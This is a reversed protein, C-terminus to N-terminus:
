YYVKPFVHGSQRSNEPLKLFTVVEQLEEKAEEIGAVDNFTIGTKAEMQFRARTKGFNMAQSSANSSRRLFLLMLAVLPLIWMLNILLGVAARSNASSVQELEVKNQRLERILESNQNLLRVQQPQVDPKQNKLTVKATQETEDIEVKQIEGSRAKKILEGYSLEQDAKQQAIAVNGSGGVMAPLMILSAALMGALAIGKSPQRKMLLKNQKINQEFKEM